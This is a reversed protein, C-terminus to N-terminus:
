PGTTTGPATTTGTSAGTAGTDTGTTATDTGTATATAATDTATAGTATSSATSARSPDLQQLEARVQDAIPDGPALKLFEDYAKIALATDGASSAVGGLQFWAAADEPNAKTVVTLADASKKFAAAAATQFPEAQKLLVDLKANSENKAAKSFPDLANTSGPIVYSPIDNASSLEQYRQFIVNAKQQDEAARAAYIEAATQNVSADAPALKVATDAAKAAEVTNGGSRQADALALWAKPDQPRDKTAQQAEKVSNPTTTASNQQDGGNNQQILDSLAPGGTGVGAVVFSVAFVIALFLYVWKASKRLREHMM